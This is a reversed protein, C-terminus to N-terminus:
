VVDTSELHCKPCKLYYGLEVRMLLICACARCLYHHCPLLRYQALKNCRICNNNSFDHDVLIRRHIKNARFKDICYPKYLYYFNGNPYEADYDDNIIEVAAGDTNLQDTDQDDGSTTKDTNLQDTDQDDGSTTKDTNLQDTDQDDGSTTKDTNLQDTDQDDGSTTKDTNLQDTDQDDGSTTKDTNLQDTDQDDGSTAEDIDKYTKNHMYCYGDDQVKFPVKSQEQIKRGHQPM